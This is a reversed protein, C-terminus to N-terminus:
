ESELLVLRTEEAPLDKKALKFKAVPEEAELGLEKILKDANQFKGKGKGPEYAIPIVIRPEIQGVVEAAEAVTLGDPDGAPVFLVDVHAFRELQGDTLKGQGLCGLHLLNIGESEFLFLTCPNARDGKGSRAPIGYMMAGKLECEGPTSIVFPSADGKGRVEDVANHLPHHPASVTVVDASLKGRKLGLAKPDCPDTIIVLEEQLPSTIIRVSAAGLWSIVM